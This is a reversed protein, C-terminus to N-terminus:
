RGLQGGDRALSASYTDDDRNQEGVLLVTGRLINLVMKGM